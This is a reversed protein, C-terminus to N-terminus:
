RKREPADAMALALQAEAEALLQTVRQRRAATCYLKLLQQYHQINRRIIEPDEMMAAGEM